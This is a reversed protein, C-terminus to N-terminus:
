KGHTVAEILKSYLNSGGSSDDDDSSTRWDNGSEPFSAFVRSLYFNFSLALAPTTVIEFQGDWNLLIISQDGLKYLEATAFDGADDLDMVKIIGGDQKKCLYWLALVAHKEPGNPDSNKTYIMQVEDFLAPDEIKLKDRVQQESIGFQDLVVLDINYIDSGEVGYPIWNFQLQM